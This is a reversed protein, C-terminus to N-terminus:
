EWSIFFVKKIGTIHLYALLRVPCLQHVENDAWLSLTVPKTDTKGKVKFAICDVIGERVVSVDRVVHNIKMKVVEDSRLFLKISLLVMVFLRFDEINNSSM